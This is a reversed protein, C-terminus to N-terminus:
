AMSCSFCESTSLAGFTVMASLGCLDLDDRNTIESSQSGGPGISVAVTTCDAIRRGHRGKAIAGSMPTIRVHSRHNVGSPYAM